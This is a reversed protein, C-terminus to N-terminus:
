EAEETHRDALPLTFRFTSGADLESEVQIKGRHATVIEKSVALGLGTGRAEIDHGKVQVFKDFIRDLYEPPIGDGTDKVTVEMFTGRVRAGLTIFDGSKTYKLANSLLNNLVWTIREFDAYVPPLDEDIDNALSVNQRQATEAFQRVSSEAIAAISCPEFSYVAGGSELKSVELLENVFGSLREGDEIITDVVTKQEKGLIGLNGGELMSAGMIISTLPTKFEHSVTAVFDTKIRELEKFGTVNQLLVICGKNQRDSGANRTVTVNFYYSKDKEFHLVKGSVADDSEMSVTIFRFLEGDRITELFHKGLAKSETFGFFEECAHNVMVVRYNRDLVILPDSISKVISVSRNKEEMLTGMTSKEYSSLREIMGNFEHVLKEIEDGTKVDLTKELKGANVQSINETLLHVPQLFRNVLYRSLLFGGTVAVLSLALILYLSNKAGAAASNKKSLMANQNLTTIQELSKSIRAIQPEVTKRYYAAAGSKGQTDRIKQFVAIERRLEGYDGGIADVIKQEGSETVDARERQFSKEFTQDQQAYNDLGTEDNMDLYQLIAYKQGDLAARAQEMASISIYNDTMLGNVSNQLNGMNFASVSGVLAILIVLGIYVTSIKGNLTKLM